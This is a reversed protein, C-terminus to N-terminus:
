EKNGRVMQLAKALQEYFIFTFITQPILRTAAPFFGRYLGVPGEQKFTKIFCDLVGSYMNSGSMYMLRTKVVDVPQTVVTAIIGALSGATFHTTLNDEFYPTSLLLFKIHDYSSVQSATMFMARVINPRSGRWLTLVGEQKAVSMIGHFVNRYNRRQEPALKVDAQM